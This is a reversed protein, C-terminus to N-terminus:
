TQAAPNSKNELTFETISNFRVLKIYNNKNNGINIQYIPTKNYYDIIPTNAAEYAYFYRAGQKWNYSAQTFIREGGVTLFLYDVDQLEFPNDVGRWYTKGIYFENFGERDAWVTINQADPLKNAYQAVEYGGYGWADTIVNDNINLVNTYHLYFPSSNLIIGVNLLIILVIMIRLIKEKTVILVIIMTTIVSYIPYLIIQYRAGVIHGGLSAGVFYIFILFIISYLVMNTNAFRNMKFYSYGKISQITFYILLGLFLPPTLTMMLVYLSANLLELKPLDSGQHLSFFFEDLDFFLYDLFLNLLLYTTGILILISFLRMGHELINHYRIFNLVKGKLILIDFFLISLGPVLIPYGASLIQAGITGMYIQEPNVWTAPFFVAYIIISIGVVTCFDYIRTYLHEIGYTKNLLYEIIISFLFIIYAIAIFYKSVLALGLFIGSIYIYKKLNTKLYLFFALFSIFGTSWLTADPNVIQSIGIIIPNLAIFSICLIAFDRNFLRKLFTYMITLMVINFIVIPLRWWFLIQELTEPTYTSPDLFLFTIGSLAAPLIGPKDNIYTGEFNLTLVSEYLQPVRTYFWKPEDVSMFQGLHNLMFCLSVGLILLLLGSYWWGEKYGWRAVWRVGWVRNVRPYKEAFEAGRKREEIEEQRAEEEVDELVGRNLYFTVAGAVVTIVMLPTKAWGLSMQLVVSEAALVLLLGLFVHSVIKEPNECMYRYLGYLRVYLVDLLKLIHPMIFSFVMRWISKCFGLFGGGYLSLATLWKSIHPKTFTPSIKWINKCFGTFKSSFTDLWRSVHLMVFLSTILWVNKCIRGCRSDRFMGVVLGGAGSIRRRTEEDDLYLYLLAMGMPALVLLVRDELGPYAYPNNHKYAFLAILFVSMGAFVWTLIVRLDRKKKTGM